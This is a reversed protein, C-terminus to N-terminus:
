VGSDVFLADLMLLLDPVEAEDVRVSRWRITLRCDKRAQAPFRWAALGAQLTDFAAPAADAPRIDVTRGDSAVSFALITEADSMGRRAAQQAPLDDAYLPQVALGECTAEAQPLQLITNEVSPAPGILVGPRVSIPSPTPPPPGADQLRPDAKASGATTVAGAALICLATQLARM